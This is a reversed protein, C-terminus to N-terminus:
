FTLICVIELRAQECICYMSKRLTLTKDTYQWKCRWVMLLLLFSCQNYICSYNSVQFHINRLCLIARECICLNDWSNTNQRYVQRNYRWVMYFYYFPVANITYTHLPMYKSVQVYIHKQPARERMYPVHVHIIKDTCKPSKAQEGGGGGGGM